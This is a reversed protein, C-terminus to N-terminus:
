FKSVKNQDINIKNEYRRYENPVIGAECSAM